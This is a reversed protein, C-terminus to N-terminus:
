RGTSKPIALLDQVPAPLDEPRLQVGPTAWGSIPDLAFAYLAGPDAGGAAPGVLRLPYAAQEQLDWIDAGGDDYVTTVQGYRTM